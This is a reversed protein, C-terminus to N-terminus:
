LQGIYAVPVFREVEEVLDGIRELAPALTRYCEPTETRLSSDEISDPIFVRARLEALSGATDLRKAESRSVARGTGHPLCMLHDTVALKARVVAMEDLLNSPILALEGPRVRQAGKRIVVGADTEEFHNHNRDLLEVGEYLPVFRGFQKEVMELVAVRNDLAWREARRFEADFKRPQDVLDDVLGSEKRSGTHVVFCVSGDATSVVADLLPQRFRPRGARQEATGADDECLSVWASRFAKSATDEGSMGSRAICLGCGVDSIAFRRWDTSDTLYGTGTPLPAKGPCTDPLSVVLKAKDLAGAQKLWARIVWDAEHSRNILVSM